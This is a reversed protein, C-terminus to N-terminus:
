WEAVADGANISLLASMTHPAIGKAAHTISGDATVFYLDTSLDLERNNVTLKGSDNVDADVPQHWTAGTNRVAIM